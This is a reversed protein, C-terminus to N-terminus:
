VPEYIQEFVDPKCVSFEGPKINDEIIWDGPDIVVGGSLTPLWGHDKIKCEPGTTVAPHDGYKFWQAARIIILRDKQRFEKM